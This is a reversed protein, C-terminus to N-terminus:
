LTPDQNEKKHIQHQSVLSPKPRGPKLLVEAHTQRPHLKRLRIWKMRLQLILHCFSMIRLSAFHLALGKSPVTLSITDLSTQAQVLPGGKTKRKEWAPQGLLEQSAPSPPLHQPDSSPQSLCPSQTESPKQELPPPMIESVWFFKQSLLAAIICLSVTLLASNKKKKKSKNCTAALGSGYCLQLTKVVLTVKKKM